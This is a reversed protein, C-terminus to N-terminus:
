LIIGSGIIVIVGTPTRNFAVPRLNSLEAAVQGAARVRLAQNQNTSKAPYIERLIRNNRDYIRRLITVVVDNLEVISSSSL